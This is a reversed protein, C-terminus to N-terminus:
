IAVHSSNLRTSKRDLLGPLYLDSLLHIRGQGYFFSVTYVMVFLSTKFLMSFCLPTATNRRGSADRKSGTQSARYSPPIRIRSIVNVVGDATSSIARASRM